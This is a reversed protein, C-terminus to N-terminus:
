SRIQRLIEVSKRVHGFIEELAEREAGALEDAYQLFEECVERADHLDYEIKLWRSRREQKQM